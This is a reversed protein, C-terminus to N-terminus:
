KVVVKELGALFKPDVEAGIGPEDPLTVKDARYSIGGVIPDAALLLATDLDCFKVNSRASAFHATATLALRTEMMCGVMCARGCAEAVANIALANYIGGSKALKINFYDCCEGDALMFADQPSFVSEDAMIPITTGRRVMAMAKHNWWAVPQECYQVGMPELARLTAVATNYDWGQNADIRLPIEDGITARIATIRATDEATTTGLKVKIAGFGMGVIEEAKAAMYDPQGIGITLDTTLERKRGGLLRYLPMGAAKGLIDYFAMDFASRVTTNHHLYGEMERVRPEVELPDKGIMLLALDRAAALDIAQTEGCLRWTPSGEGVGHIGEDTNIRVFINNADTTVMISIRFPEKLPVDAKFIEVSTIKM